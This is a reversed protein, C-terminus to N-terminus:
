KFKWNDDVWGNLKAEDICAKICEARESEVTVLPPPIIEELWAWPVQSAKASAKASSELMKVASLDAERKGASDEDYKGQTWNVLYTEYAAFYRVYPCLADLVREGIHLSNKVESVTM